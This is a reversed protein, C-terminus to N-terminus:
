ESTVEDLNSLLSFGSPKADASNDRDHICAANEIWECGAVLDFSRDDHSDSHRQEFM